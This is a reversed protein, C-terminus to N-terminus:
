EEEQELQMLEKLLAAKRQRRRAKIDERTLWRGEFTLEQAELEMLQSRGTASERAWQKIAWVDDDTLRHRGNRNIRNSLARGAEQPDEHLGLRHGVIQRGGAANVDAELAIRRANGEPLLATQKM